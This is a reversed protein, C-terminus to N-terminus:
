NPSPSSTEIGDTIQLPGAKGTITVVAADWQVCTADRRYIVNGSLGVTLLVLRRDTGNCPGGLYVKTQSAGVHGCWSDDGIHAESEYWCLDTDSKNVFTINYEPDCAFLVALLALVVFFRM